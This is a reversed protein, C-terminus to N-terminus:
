EYRLADLASIKTARISPYYGTFVGILYSLLLTFAVLAFPIYTISIAGQGASISIASLFVDLIKGFIFGLLVGATGGFFGLILSEALFMEKVENSKMGLSKLLGVEHTRELLSVTLTNFMGLAAVSLALVGLLLLAVRVGSFLSEIRQLTDQVSQTEFGLAEIKERIAPIISDNDAVVKVQSYNTVGLTKIDKLPIYIYPNDDQIVGTIKYVESKSTAKKGELEPILDGVLTFKINFDKGISEDNSLGLASLFSTTVVAEKIIEGEIFSIEIEKVDSSTPQLEPIINYIGPDDFNLVDDSFLAKELVSDDAKETTLASESVVTPQASEGAQNVTNEDTIGLVENIKNETEASQAAFSSDLTTTQIFSTVKNNLIYSQVDKNKYDKEWTKGTKFFKGKITSLDSYKLYMDDSAYVVVDVASGKYDVKGVVSVVPLIDKVGKITLLEKIAKNNIPLQKTNLSSIDTQKIQNLNAVRGKVLKEAGYGISLLFVTAGIGIAMGGITVATRTKKSFMTKFALDILQWKKIDLQKDFFNVVRKSIKEFFVAEKNVIVSPIKILRQFGTIIKPIFYFNLLVFFVFSTLTIKIFQYLYPFVLLKKIKKHNSLNPLNKKFLGM